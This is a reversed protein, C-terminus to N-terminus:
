GCALSEKWIRVSIVRITYLESIMGLWNWVFTIFRVNPANKEGLGINEGTHLSLKSQVKAPESGIISQLTGWRKCGV